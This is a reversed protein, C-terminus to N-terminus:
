SNSMIDLDLNRKYISILEDKERRMYEIFEVFEVFRKDYLGQKLSEAKGDIIIDHLIAVLDEEVFSAKLLYGSAEGQDPHTALNRRPYDNYASIIVVPIQKRFQSFFSKKRLNILFQEGSMEPMQWDLLICAIQNDLLNFFRRYKRVATTAEVGNNAIVAQCYGTENVIDAFMESQRKNDEVILVLSKKEVLQKGRDM